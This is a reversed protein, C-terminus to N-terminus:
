GKKQLKKHLFASRWQPVAQGSTWGTGENWLFTGRRDCSRGRCRM